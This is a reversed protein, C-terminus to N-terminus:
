IERFSKNKSNFGPERDSCNNGHLNKKQGDKAPLRQIRSGYSHLACIKFGSVSRVFLYRCLKTANKYHELRLFKESYLHHYQIIGRHM